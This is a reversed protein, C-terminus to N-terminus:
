PARFYKGQWTDKEELLQELRKQVQDARIKGWSVGENLILPVEGSLREIAIDPRLREIFQILFDLYEEVPFLQFHEQFQKYELAMATGKVIQLQHFKITQVPLQNIMDVQDLMQNRTEGPLGFLMHIGASLGMDATLRIARISDAFTHGRNIRALTEDYCTEIGYEIKIYYRHSLEKLYHLKEQDICDPRTAIVLGQIDHHDLAEKYVKKLLPLSAYTNSFSQFYAVFFRSRPYRKTLFVLGKDIQLSISKDSRCYSPRFGDNSCFTCGGIGVTGDRNPCSFGADIAVKQVRGGFKMRCQEAWSNYRKGAGPFELFHIDMDLHLIVQNQNSQAYKYRQVPINGWWFLIM